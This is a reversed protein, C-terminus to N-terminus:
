SRAGMVFGARAACASLSRALADLQAPEFTVPHGRDALRRFLWCLRAIRALSPDGLTDLGLERWATHEAHHCAACLPVVLPPDLYPGAPVLRGTAHHLERAPRDSLWCRGLDRGSM